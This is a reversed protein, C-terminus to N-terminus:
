IFCHTKLSKKYFLSGWPYLLMSWASFKLGRSGQRPGRAKWGEAHKKIGRRVRTKWFTVYFNVMIADLSIFFSKRKPLYFQLIMIVTRVTLNELRSPIANICSAQMKSWVHVTNLLKKWIGELTWSLPPLNHRFHSIWIPILMGSWKIISRPADCYQM